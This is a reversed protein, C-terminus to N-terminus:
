KMRLERAADYAIDSAHDCADCAFWENGHPCKPPFNVMREDEDTWSKPPEPMEIDPEAEWKKGCKPCVASLGDKAVEFFEDCEKCWPPEPTEPPDNWYDNM